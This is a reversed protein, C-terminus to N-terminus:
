LSGGAEAKLTSPDFGHVVVAWSLAETRVVFFECASDTKQTCM